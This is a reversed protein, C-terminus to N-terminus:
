STRLVVCVCVCRLKPVIRSENRPGALSVLRSWNLREFQCQRRLGAWRSISWPRILARTRRPWQCILTLGIGSTRSKPSIDGSIIFIQQSETKKKKFCIFSGTLWTDMSEKEFQHPPLRGFGETKLQIICCQSTWVSQMQRTPGMLNLM